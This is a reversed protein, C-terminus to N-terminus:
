YVLLLTMCTDTHSDGDVADLITLRVYETEVTTGLDLSQLGIFDTDLAFTYSDGTSFDLRVTKMRGYERFKDGRMYGNILQVGRVKQKKQTSSIAYEYYEGVGSGQAGEAWCTTDNHLANSAAFTENLQSSYNLVNFVPNDGDPATYNEVALGDNKSETPESGKSVVLSVTLGADANENAAPTQSIINGNAIFSDYEYSVVSGVLSCGDLISTAEYLPLGRLDPVIVTGSPAESKTKTSITLTVTTDPAIFSPGPTQAIVTNSSSNSDETTVIVYNIGVNKLINEAAQRNFGVLNRLYVEGNAGQANQASVVTTDTTKDSDTTIDPKKMQKYLAFFGIICLFIAAIEVVTLIVGTKDEGSDAKRRVVPADLDDDEDFELDDDIYLKGCRPCYKENDEMFSHCYGCEKM